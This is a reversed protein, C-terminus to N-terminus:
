RVIWTVVGACAAAIVLARLRLMTDDRSAPWAGPFEADGSIMPGVLDRRKGFRYYLIAALHM